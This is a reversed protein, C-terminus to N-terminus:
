RQQQFVSYEVDLGEGLGYVRLSDPSAALGIDVEVGVVTAEVGFGSFELDVGCEEPGGRSGDSRRRGSDAAGCVAACRSPAPSRAGEDAVPWATWMMATGVSSPAEHLARSMTAAFRSDGHCVAALLLFASLLPPPLLLLRRPVAMGLADPM